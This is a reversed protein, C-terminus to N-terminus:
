KKWKHFCRRKRSFNARISVAADAACGSLVAVGTVALALLIAARRHVRDPQMTGPRVSKAKVTEPRVMERQVM